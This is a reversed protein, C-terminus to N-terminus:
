KIPYLINKKKIKAHREIRKKNEYNMYAKFKKLDNEM